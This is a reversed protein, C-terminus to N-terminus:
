QIVGDKLIRYVPVKIIKSAVATGGKTIGRIQIEVDTSDFYLTDKQTLSVILCNQKTDVIVDGGSKELIKNAYRNQKFTIYISDGNFLSVDFKKIYMKIRPTTGRSIAVMVTKGKMIRM